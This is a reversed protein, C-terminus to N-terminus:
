RVRTAAFQTLLSAAFCADVCLVCKTLADATAADAAIVCAEGAIPRLPEGRRYYGRHEAPADLARTDSSAVAAARLELPQETGGLRVVITRPADGFVALDGGANVLGASCGATRLARLALDVAFGKGIGGFDIRLPSRKYVTCGGDAAAAFVVETLGGPEDPLCPDFAGGSAEHLRRCLPWLSAFEEGLALAVGPPAANLAALESGPRTPHLRTDIRAIAALAARIGTDVTWMDPACAEVAVLTGLAVSLRTAQAPYPM